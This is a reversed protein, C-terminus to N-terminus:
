EICIFLARAHTCVYMCVYMCENMTRVVVVVVCPSELILVPSYSLLSEEIDCAFCM